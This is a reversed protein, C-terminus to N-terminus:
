QNMQQINLCYFFITSVFSFLCNIITCHHIALFACYLISISRYAHRKNKKEWVSCKYWLTVLVSCLCLCEISLNQAKFAPIYVYVSMWVCARVWHNIQGNMIYCLDVLISGNAIKWNKWWRLSFTSIMNRQGLVMCDHNSTKTKLLIKTCIESGIQNRRLDWVLFYKLIGYWKFRVYIEVSFQLVSM